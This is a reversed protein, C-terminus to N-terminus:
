TELQADKTTKEISAIIAPRFKSCIIDAHRDIWLKLEQNQLETDNNTDIDKFFMKQEEGGIKGDVNKDYM